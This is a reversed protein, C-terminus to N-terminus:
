LARRSRTVRQVRAYAILTGSALVREDGRAAGKFVSARRQGHSQISLSFFFFFFCGYLLKLACLARQVCRVKRIRADAFM